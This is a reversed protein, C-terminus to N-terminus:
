SRNALATTPAACKSRCERKSLLAGVLLESVRFPWGDGLFMTNELALPASGNEPGIKQDTRRNRSKCHWGRNGPSQDFLLRWLAPAKRRKKRNQGVGPGAQDLSGPIIYRIPGIVLKKGQNGTNLKGRGAACIIV